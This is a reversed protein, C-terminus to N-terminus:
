LKALAERVEEVRKRFLANMAQTREKWKPNGELRPVVAAGSIGEMKLEEIVQREIDQEAKKREVQYESVLLQFKERVDSVKMGRLSEIGDFLREHDNELSLAEMWLSLLLKKVKSKEQGTMREIERLIEHLPVHGEMYRHSLGTAKKLLEQRKIEEREEQTMALKRTRELALELTSKIEGM